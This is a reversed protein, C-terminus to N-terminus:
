RNSFQESSLSRRSSRRAPVSAHRKNSTPTTGADIFRAIAPHELRALIRGETLFRQLAQDDEVEQWLALMADRNRQFTESRPDITTSPAAV